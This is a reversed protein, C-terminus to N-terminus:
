RAHDSSLGLRPSTALHLGGEIHLTLMSKYKVIQKDDSLRFKFSGLLIMSFVKMQRMAFEKGLCIRPGAQFATFKFSSEQRFVGKDDLWREPKFEEADEGWVYKMRGMAYPMYMVVDGKNVNFGDPLIDDKLCLKPDVPVAPYLRLTESLTAHLYQLKDVAEETIRSAIEDFSSADNVGTAERVEKAIRDQIEPYKCMLYLFWSLTTATTDKGAIIFSLIIDKLYKPDRMDMELFISLLDGRKKLSDDKSLNVQEIKSNILKYVYDNVIKINRKLVAESGVNLFRKIKWFVDVYRSTTIVSAEDFANSFRTGEESTGCMTDLEVGLVVKFVTDLTSKIFLDQVDVSQNLASANAIMLALKAGSNRFVDSSFDRLIKTSFQYSASKRQHKWKDGDVTFIGDGLLDTLIDYNLKGKGYSSFNTKLIHEINVPDATNVEGRLFGLMRYTSYKRALDTMHDHMRHFNVAEDIFSGAVPHYKKKKRGGTAYFSIVIYLGVAIFAITVPTFPHSYSLFEM